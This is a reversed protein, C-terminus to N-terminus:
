ADKVHVEFGAVLIGVMNLDSLRVTEVIENTEKNIWHAINSRKHIELYENVFDDEFDM